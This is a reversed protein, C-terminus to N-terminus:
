QCGLMWNLETAWDHGVRQSGMFWLVERDMMLERVESLSVDMSDTIGDLWRMRQWGRRSRGGIGGLILTKELSDARRMLHGFYQLKLRLMLGELSCGPSIEKLISQNSRRATWPARLLRRWCWPEFAEIRWRDAKKVTWSECGYIVMPFVMAKALRVKTPLTIDRSKFISDLNM